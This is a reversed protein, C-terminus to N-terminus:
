YRWQGEVRLGYIGMTERGLRFDFRKYLRHSQLNHEQTSLGVNRAGRAQMARLAYALQAAGYGKGQQESVVALRDLHAWSSYNTYSAYGIPEGDARAVFVSVDEMLLYSGMEDQSNWWLWPFSAHDLVLLLDLDAISAPAIDLAPLGEEWERDGRAHQARLDREFFVIREIQSFGLSAFLSPEDRWVDEAVLLLKVGEAGLREVLAEVLARKNRRGAVEVINAIDDRRRWREGVIYENTGVVRLSKGPDEVLHAALNEPSFRSLWPLRLDGLGQPTLVEIDSKPNRIESKPDIV